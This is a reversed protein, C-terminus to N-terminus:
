TVGLPSSISDYFKQHLYRRTYQIMHLPCICRRPSPWVYLFSKGKCVLHLCYDGDRVHWSPPPVGSVSCLFNEHSVWLDPVSTQVVSPKSLPYSVFISFWFLLCNVFGSNYFNPLHLPPLGFRSRHTKYPPGRVFRTLVMSRTFTEAGPYVDPWWGTVHSSM